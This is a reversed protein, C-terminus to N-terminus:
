PTSKTAFNPMPMRRLSFSISASVSSGVPQRMVQLSTLTCNATTVLIWGAILFTILQYMINEDSLGEGTKPDRGNLMRDLLDNRSEGSAKRAAVVSVLESPAYLIKLCLKSQGCLETMKDADAEFKANTGTMFASMMRLRRPRRYCEALFDGM